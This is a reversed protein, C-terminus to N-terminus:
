EKKWYEEDQALIIEAKPPRPNRVLAEISRKARQRVYGPLNKIEKWARPIIYVTYRSV